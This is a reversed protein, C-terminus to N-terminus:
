TKFILQLPSQLLSRYLQSLTDIDLKLARVQSTYLKTGDYLTMM